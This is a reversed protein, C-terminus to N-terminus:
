GEILVLSVDNVNTGTPGTILLGDCAKLGEYADNEDLIAPIRLGQAELLARSEGDVVGGAADTPGDTGDSGLALVAVGKLGAIQQAAALAMEQNRGGRGRGRLYVVTEGGAVFARKRGQGAHARAICGLFTGAERAECCLCDTLLEAEYGRRACEELAARCLQGVGGTVMARANALERVPEARLLEWAAGSLRLSYKRAIELAERATSTDPCAPGSAIMDARDGVVDSLIISVVEAPACARAFKGGKVASLRKRITNVEVIDAGCALLQANIDRLEAFPLLPAEMLASGGGSLLFLVRDEAALASVAELVARTARVGNEDMQPHGAEFVQFGPLEGQAHGYKTIVYGADLRGALARAAAQAMPWAAKGVAVAVTKGKAPALEALARRVAEDPMSAAVAERAIAFAEKKLEMSM